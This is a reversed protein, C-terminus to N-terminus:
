APVIAQRAVHQHHAASASAKARGDGGGLRV